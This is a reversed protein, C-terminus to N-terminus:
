FPRGPPPPLRPLPPLAPPPFMGTRPASYNPQEYIIVRDNDHYRREQEWREREWQRRQWDPVPQEVVIVPEDYRHAQAAPAAFAAALSLGLTLAMPLRRQAFWQAISRNM